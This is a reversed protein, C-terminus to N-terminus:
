ARPLKYFRASDSFVFQNEELRDWVDRPIIPIAKAWQPAAYSDPQCVYIRKFDGEKGIWCRVSLGGLNFDQPHEPTSRGIVLSESRSTTTETSKCGFIVAFVFAFALASAKM